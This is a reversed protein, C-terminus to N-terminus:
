IGEGTLRSPSDSAQRCSFHYPVRVRTFCSCTRLPWQGCTYWPRPQVFGMSSFICCETASECHAFNNELQRLLPSRITSEVPNTTTSNVTYLLPMEDGREDALPPTILLYSSSKASLPLSTRTCYQVRLLRLSPWVTACVHSGRCPPYSRRGSYQGLRWSLSGGGRTIPTM